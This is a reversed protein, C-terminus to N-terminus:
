WDGQFVQLHSEGEIDPTQDRILASVNQAIRDQLDRYSYNRGSSRMHLLEEILYHTYVGFVVNEGGDKFEREVALQRDQCAALLVYAPPLEREPLWGSPGGKPLTPIPHEIPKVRDPAFRSVNVIDEQLRVKLMTGSHCSDIIFVLHLDDAAKHLEQAYLFLEDDLIYEADIPVIAEDKKDSIEDPTGNEKKERIQYGHGSYYFLVTSGHKNAIDRKLGEMRELIECRKLNLHYPTNGMFQFGYEDHLVDSLRAVDNQPGKLPKYKTFLGKPYAGIGIMLALKLM